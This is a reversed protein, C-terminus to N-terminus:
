AAILVGLGAAAQRIECVAAALDLQQRADLDPAMANLTDILAQCRRLAAEFSPTAKQSEKPEIRELLSEIAAALKTGNEPLLSVVNGDFNVGAETIHKAIARYEKPGIHILNTIAFYVPGFERLHGIAKDVTRRDVRLYRKCFEAWTCDLKKYGKEERLRRLSEIDAAAARGVMLGWAERRGMSQGLGMSEIDLGNRM